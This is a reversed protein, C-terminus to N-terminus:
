KNRTIDVGVFAAHRVAGPKRVSVDVKQVRPNELCIKAVHEALAEVLGFKSDSIESVIRQSITRYNVTDEIDDSRGAASLDAHLTVDVQIRQRVLREWENIGIVCAIEIGAIQIRDLPRDTV